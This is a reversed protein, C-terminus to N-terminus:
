NRYRWSTLHELSRPASQLMAVCEDYWHKYEPPCLEGSLFKGAAIAAEPSIIVPQPQSAPAPPEDDGFLDDNLDQIVEAVDELSVEQRSAPPKAMLNATRWATMYELLSYAIQRAMEKEMGINLKQKADDPTNKQPMIAGTKTPVGPGHVLNWYVKDGSTNVRLIRSIVKDAATGKFDVFNVEKGWSLDHLLPRITLADVYHSLSLNSGEGARYSGAFLQIKGIELADQFHL